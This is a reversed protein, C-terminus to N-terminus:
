AGLPRNHLYPQIILQAQPGIYIRKSHGLHATKHQDPEVTWIADHSGCWDLGIIYERLAKLSKPSFQEASTAGYLHRLPRLVQRFNDVETTPTGDPKRCYGKAHQWFAYILHSVTRGTPEDEPNSSPKPTSQATRRGQSLWEAILRDYAAQSESSGHQGLYHDHCALTVVAQGSNRHLRYTPLKGNLKPM